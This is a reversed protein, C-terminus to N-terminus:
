SVTEFFTYEFLSRSLDSVLHYNFKVQYLINPLINAKEIPFKINESMLVLKALNFYHKTFEYSNQSNDIEIRALKVLNDLLMDLNNVLYCNKSHLFIEM